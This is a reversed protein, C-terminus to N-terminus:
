IGDKESKADKSRFRTMTIDDLKKQEIKKQEDRFVEQKREKLKEGIKTDRTRELLITRLIEVQKEFEQIKLQQARIRLDQGLIFEHVQTLSSGAAGGQVQQQYRIEFAQHKENLMKDLIDQQNKLESLGLQYNRAAENELAKRHQLVKELNFKFKAM